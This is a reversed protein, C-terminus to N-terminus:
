PVLERLEAEIASLEACMVRFGYPVTRYPTRAVDAISRDLEELLFMAVAAVRGRHSSRSLQQFAVETPGTPQGAIFQLMRAGLGKPYRARLGYTLSDYSRSRRDTHEWDILYVRRTRREVHINGPQLDGHSQVLQIDGLQEAKEAIAQILSANPLSVGQFRHLLEQRGTSVRKLLGEARERASIDQADLRSWEDLARLAQAEYHRRPWWSPCRPLPFGDVIPEEFWTQDNGVDTVPFFPGTGDRGRVAVENSIADVPYGAKLFSRSLGEALDFTRVRRSGPIILLNAAGPVPPRVRFVPRRSLSLGIPSGLATGLMWQLPVRATVPTFRFRDVMFRRAARSVDENYLTTLTRQLFWEQGKGRKSGVAVDFTGGHQDTWGKSLTATLVSVLDEQEAIEWTELFM